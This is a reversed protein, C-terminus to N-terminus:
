RKWFYPVAAATVAAVGSILCKMLAMSRLSELFYVVPEAELKIRWGPVLYCLCIYTIMFAAVGYWISLWIKQIKIMLITM